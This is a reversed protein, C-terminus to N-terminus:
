SARASPRVSLGLTPPPLVLFRHFACTTSHRCLYTCRERRRCPTQVSRPVPFLISPAIHQWVQRLSPHVESKNGNGTVNRRGPWGGRVGFGSKVREKPGSRVLVASHGGRSQAAATTPGGAGGERTPCDRWRVEGGREYRDVEYRFSFPCVRKHRALSSPRTERM